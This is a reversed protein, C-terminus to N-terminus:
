FLMMVAESAWKFLSMPIFSFIVTAIAMAGWTLDLWGESTTKPEGEKMYMIVIVRLYYFASILSTLVGIIALWIFGGEVVVRFLYIKGVLGL